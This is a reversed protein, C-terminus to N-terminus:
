RRRFRVTGGPPLQALADASPADVIGIVPYGGTVPHDSMLVTPEGSPPVQISGRVVGESPLERTVARDLRPGELRIGVRDSRSSVSWPESFFRERSEPAFWGARPGPRVRAICAGAPAGWPLIPLPPIEGVVADGVRLVDDAALPAPGLGSLLDTSRSGLVPPVDVGGRVGLVVRVGHEVAGIRLREGRRVLFPLNMDVRRRGADVRAWAGTAVVWLDADPVAEFGGLTVELVASGPDNGLLRNARALAECDLAGSPPVGIHAHGPRGRDQVTALPGPEVVRLSAARLPTARRSTADLSTM